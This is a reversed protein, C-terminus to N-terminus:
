TLVAERYYAGYGDAPPSPIATGDIQTTTRYFVFNLKTQHKAQYGATQPRKVKLVGKYWTYRLVKNVNPTVSEDKYSLDYELGALVGGVETIDGFNMGYSEGSVGTITPKSYIVQEDKLDLKDLTVEVEVRPMQDVQQSTNDGEFNLTDIQPNVTVQNAYFM